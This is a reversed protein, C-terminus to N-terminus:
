VHILLNETLLREMKNVEGEEQLAVTLFDMKNKIFGDEILELIEYVKDAMSIAKFRIESIDMFIASKETM